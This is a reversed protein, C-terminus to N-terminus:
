RSGINWPQPQIQIPPARTDIANPMSTMRRITFTSTQHVDGKRHQEAEAARDEGEDPERALAGSRVVVVGSVYRRLRSRSSSIGVLELLQQGLREESADHSGDGAAEEVSTPPM